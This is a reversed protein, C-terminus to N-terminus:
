KLKDRAQQAARDARNLSDLTAKSFDPSHADMPKNSTPLVPISVWRRRRTRLEWRGLVIIGIASLGLGVGATVDTPDVYNAPTFYRIVAGGTPKILAYYSDSIQTDVRIYLYLPRHLKLAAQAYDSVEAFDRQGDSMIQQNKSEAIWLDTIFDPIRYSNTKITVICVNCGSPVSNANQCFCQRQGSANNNATGLDKSLIREADSGDSVAPTESSYRRHTPNPAITNILLALCLVFLCVSLLLISLRIRKM